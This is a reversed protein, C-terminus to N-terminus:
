FSAQSWGFIRRRTQGRWLRSPRRAWCRGRITSILWLIRPWSIAHVERGARLIAPNALSTPYSTERNRRQIILAVSLWEEDRDAIAIAGVVQMALEFKLRPKLYGDAVRTLKKKTSADFSLRARAYADYAM